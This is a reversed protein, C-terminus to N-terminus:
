PCLRGRCLRARQLQSRLGNRAKAAVGAGVGTEPPPKLVQSLFWNWSHSRRDDADERELAVETLVKGHQASETGVRARNATGLFEGLDGAQHDGTALRADHVLQGPQETELVREPLGDGIPKRNVSGAGAEDHQRRVDQVADGPLLTEAADVDVDSAVREAGLGVRELHVELHRHDAVRRQM